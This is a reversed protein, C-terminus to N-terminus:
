RLTGRTRWWQAKMGPGEDRSRWGQVKMGPGEDRPKWEQAKMGPGEDMPRWGQAKMGPGEDRSRWGHSKMGPGEYRPRWGQAEDRSRWGQAKMGPGEDRSRWGHAKMVEDRWWKKHGPKTHSSFGSTVRDVVLTDAHGRGTWWRTVAGTHMELTTRIQSHPLHQSVPSTWVFTRWTTMRMAPDVTMGVAIHFSRHCKTRILKTRVSVRNKRTKKRWDLFCAVIEPGSSMVKDQGTSLCVFQNVFIEEM